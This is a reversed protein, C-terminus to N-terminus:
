VLVEVESELRKWAEPDVQRITEGALDLAADYNCSRFEREAESLRAAVLPYQSRYRNGYQIVQEALYAHDITRNAEENVQEVTQIAEDLAFGVETMDVPQRDLCDFVNAVEERAKDLEALLTEPIGPMNSKKLKRNTALLTQQMDSLKNKAEFEDQRIAKIRDSFVKHEKQLEELQQQNNELMERLESYATTGDEVKSQFDLFQKKIKAMWKELELQKGMDQDELHYTQQLDEVEHKTALLIRNSEELHKHYPDYQKDIYNRAIAEKELLQYIEQVRQETETIFEEIGTVRGKELQAVCEKLKEHHNHIEKEFGLHSVRYGEEKMEAMGSIIDDLQIPLEQKCKKYLVPFVEIRSELEQLNEKLLAVLQSAELYDGQDVLSFYSDLKEQLDKLESEFVSEAKGYKHRNQLLDKKIEKIAPQVHEVEQRSTQESDLLHELEKYMEEIDKETQQLKQETLKISQRAKTFRYKDAAEEVDFLDEELNPLEKTLIEDWRNRWKEFKEQTEGSLNLHKVKSLEETVKRNMIDLKWNELKDVEDYLKKRTILGFIIIGVVVLIAGILYEM